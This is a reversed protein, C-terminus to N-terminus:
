PHRHRLSHRNQTSCLHQSLYGSLFLLFLSYYLHVGKHYGPKNNHTSPARMMTQTAQRSFLRWGENWLFTAAGGEPFRGKVVMMILNFNIPAYKSEMEANSLRFFFHLPKGGELYYVCKAQHPPPVRCVNPCGRSQSPPPSPKPDEDESRGLCPTAAILM